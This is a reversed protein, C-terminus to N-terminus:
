GRNLRHFLHTFTAAGLIPVLLNIVPISLPVAMLAGALWIQGLHARWMDRAQQRGMRRMAVLQFYERGLLYGNLGWFILPAAPAFLLYLVLAAINAGILVALFRATDQLAQAWSVTGAAALHPYHREEVADAVDDLFLSTFASAVPVMLFVSLVLMLLISAGSILNDVWTVTGLWPLAVSEPALWSILWLVSGYVGFLLALTLGIGLLLVRRFRHDGLQALAKLFDTFIM